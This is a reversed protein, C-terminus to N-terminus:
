GGGDDGALVGDLNDRFDIGLLVRYAGGRILIGSTAILIHGAHQLDTINRRCLQHRHNARQQRLLSMESGIGVGIHQDYRCRCGNHLAKGLDHATDIGCIGRINFHDAEAVGGGVFHCTNEGCHRCIRGFPPLGASQLVLDDGIGTGVRHQDITVLCRSQAELRDDGMEIQRQITTDQQILAATLSCLDRGSENHISMGAPKDVVLWGKGLALVPIQIAERETTIKMSVVM